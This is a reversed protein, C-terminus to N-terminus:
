FTFEDSFSVKIRSNYKVFILTFIVKLLAAPETLIVNCLIILPLLLEDSIFTNFKM